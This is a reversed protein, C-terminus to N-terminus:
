GPPGPNARTLRDVLTRYTKAMEFISSSSYDKENVCFNVLRRLAELYDPVAEGLRYRYDEPRQAIFSELRDDTEGFLPLFDARDLPHSRIIQRTAQLVADAYEWPSDWGVPDHFPPLIM